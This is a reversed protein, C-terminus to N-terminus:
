LYVESYSTAPRDEVICVPLLRCNASAYGGPAPSLASMSSANDSEVVPTSTPVRTPPTATVTPISTPISTVTPVITPTPASSASTGTSLVVGLLLGVILLVSALITATAVRGPLAGVIPLNMTSPLACAQGAEPINQLRNCLTRMDPLHRERMDPDPEIAHMVLDNLEASVRQNLERVPPLPHRAATVRDSITTTDPLRGTLIEYLVMGLGYIDIQPSIKAGPRRREPPLYRRKGVVHRLRPNELSEMAAFDILIADPQVSFFSTTSKRLLINSPSIDHHVLHADKHEHLHQLVEGVQLAIQVACGPPLPKHNRHELEQKLSGGPEYALAIYPVQIQNGDNNTVTVFAMDSQRRSHTSFVDPFRQSFTKILRDHKVGPRSLYEQENLLYSEQDPHAIKLVCLKEQEILRSTAGPWRLHRFLRPLAMQESQRLRALYVAAQGGTHIQCLVEFPGVRKGPPLTDVINPM